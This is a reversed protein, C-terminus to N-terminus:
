NSATKRSSAVQPNPPGVKLLPSAPPQTNGAPVAAATTRLAGGPAIAPPPENRALFTARQELDKVGRGLSQEVIDVQTGISVWDFVQIVDASRMRICGFSAKRGLFAEQPTGHIYICRKYANRNGGELGRLWIIRSVIPDRGPANAPLVEGTVQRRWFVSGAPARTGIKGAIQLMGIPTRWSGWNDGEGYRSTSVPFSKYIKGNVVVALKQDAVSVVLQVIPAPAPGASAAARIAASSSSPSPAPSAVTNSYYTRAYTAVAASTNGHSPTPAATAGQGDELTATVALAVGSMLLHYCFLRRM